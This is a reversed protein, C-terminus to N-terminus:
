CGMFSYAGNAVKTTQGFNNESFPLSIRGMLVTVPEQDDRFIFVDDNSSIVSDSIDREAKGAM